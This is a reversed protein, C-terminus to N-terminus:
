HLPYDVNPVDKSWCARCPGCENDRSKAECINGVGAGVTSTQFGYRRVVDSMIPARGVLPASMRLALNTPIKGGSKLWDLVFAYERTPLWFRVAPLAEAISCIAALHAVNQVDGSDHWRFVPDGITVAKPILRIMAATWTDLDALSERRKELCKQVNAFRYNGRKFAYCHSCTSGSVERLKSGTVCDAAPLSYAYGPMKSPMSLGGVFQWDPDRTLFGPAKPV